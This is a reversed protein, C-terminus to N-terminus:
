LYVEEGEEGLVKEIDPLRVFRGNRGVVGDVGGMDDSGLGGGGGNPDDGFRGAGGGGNKKGVFILRCAGSVM